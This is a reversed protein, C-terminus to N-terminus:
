SDKWLGLKRLADRRSEDMAGRGSFQVTIGQPRFMSSSRQKHEHSLAQAAPKQTVGHYSHRPPKPAPTPVPAKVSKAPSVSPRNMGASSPNFTRSKGGYSNLETPLPEPKAPLTQNKDIHSSLIDPLQGRTAAVSAPNMVKTKGGYPNFETRNALATPLIKPEHSTPARPESKSSVSPNVVISKGGYSNSELSTVEPPPTFSAMDELPPPYNRSPAVAPPSPSPQRDRSPTAAPPSPSPQRDRSPAAAPPSPSPQRNRSPTVAPPSPSPQRDRSPTAAPPSPSPQRNRSPTVAPPSPSPQRNRDEHMRSSETQLIEPKRDVQFPSLRPTTVNVEPLQAFTGTTPTIPPASAELPKATTETTPPATAELLKASTEIKPPAIAELPKASTEIKPPAIAELPKASTSTRNPNTLPSVGDSMARNRNLGLKSLAELRSQAPSPDKFSISRTPTNRDIQEVALHSDEQLLPNSTGTLNALMQARREQINVNAQSPNQHEKNGHIININSPFRSPKTSTPPGHRVPLDSSPSVSKDSEQSSDRLFPTRTFNSTGGAQNEAIQQAILVPTPICGPPHYSSPSDAGYSGSPLPPNYESPLNDKQMMSQFDPSTPNFIPEKTQLLDSEPRVLYIIDHDKPSPHRALLSSVIPHSTQPRNVRIPRSSSTPTRRQDNEELSEELSDITKEFFQLCEQEEQSLSKLADDDGSRSSRGAGGNVGYHLQPNGQLHVDM